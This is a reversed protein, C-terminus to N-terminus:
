SRITKTRKNDLRYKWQLALPSSVHTTPNTNRKHEGLQTAHPQLIGPFFPALPLNSLFVHFAICTYCTSRGNPVRVRFLGAQPILDYRILYLYSQIRCAVDVPLSRVIPVKNQTANCSQYMALLAQCHRLREIHMNFIVCTIIM